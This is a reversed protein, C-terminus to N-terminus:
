FTLSPCAPFPLGSAVPVDRSPAVSQVVPCWPVIPGLPCRHTGGGLVHRRVVAAGPPQSDVCRTLEKRPAYGRGGGEPSRSGGPPSLAGSAPTITVPLQSAGQATGEWLWVTFPCSQVSWRGSNDGLPLSQPEGEAGPSLLTPPPSELPRLSVWGPVESCWERGDGVPGPPAPTLTSSRAREM